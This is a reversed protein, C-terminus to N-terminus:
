IGNLGLRSNGRTTRAVALLINQGRVIARMSGGSSSSRGTSFSGLQNNPVISGSVSPVFVEPGREGVMYSTGGTVPGGTARAGGILLKFWDKFGTAGAVGGASLGLLPGLISALATTTILKGILQTLAQIAAQGFARFANEGKGLAAFMSDFAPTLTNIVVDAEMKELAMRREAAAKLDKNEAVKINPTVVLKSIKETLSNQLTEAFTLQKPKDLLLEQM